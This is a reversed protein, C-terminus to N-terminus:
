LKEFEGFEYITVINEHHLRAAHRAERRFRDVREPRNALDRALIKLAVVRGLEEDHAKYVVGMGGSALHSIVRYKGVRLNRKTDKDPEAPSMQVETRYAQGQTQEPRPAFASEM